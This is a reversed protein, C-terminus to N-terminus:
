APPAPLPIDCRMSPILYGFLMWGCLCFLFLTYVLARVISDRKATLIAVFFLLLGITIFIMGPDFGWDREGDQIGCRDNWRM